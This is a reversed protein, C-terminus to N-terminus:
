PTQQFTKMPIHFDLGVGVQQLQIEASSFM